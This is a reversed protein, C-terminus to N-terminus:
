SMHRTKQYKANGILTLKVSVHFIGLVGPRLEVIICLCRELVDQLHRKHVFNRKTPKISHM